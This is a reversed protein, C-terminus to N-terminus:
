LSAAISKGRVSKPFMCHLPQKCLSTLSEKAMPSSFVITSNRRSSRSPRLFFDSACMSRPLFTFLEPLPCLRSSVQEMAEGRVLVRRSYDSFDLTVSSIPKDPRNYTYGFGFVERPFAVSSALSFHPIEIQKGRATLTVTERVFDQERSPGNAATILS